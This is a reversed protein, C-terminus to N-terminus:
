PHKADNETRHRRLRDKIEEAEAWRRLQARGVYGIIGGCRVCEGGVGESDAYHRCPCSHWPCILWRRWWSRPDPQGRFNM